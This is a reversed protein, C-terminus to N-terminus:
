PFTHSILWTDDIIGLSNKTWGDKSTYKRFSDLYAAVNPAIHYREEGEQPEECILLGPPLIGACIHQQSYWTNGNDDVLVVIDGTGSLSEPASEFGFWSDEHFTRVRAIAWGTEFRIVQSGRWPPESLAKESPLPRRVLDKLEAEANRVWEARRQVHARLARLRVFYWATAIVAVVSLTSVILNRRTSSRM